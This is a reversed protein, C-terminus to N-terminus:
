VSALAVSGEHLTPRGDFMLAHLLAPNNRIYILILLFFFKNWVVISHLDSTGMYNKMAQIYIFSTRVQAVEGFPQFQEMLEAETYSFALNRLFLRSTQLITDKALDRPEDPVASHDVDGHEDGSQEFVKDPSADSASKMRHRMWELDSIAENDDQGEAHEDGSPRYSFPIHNRSDM